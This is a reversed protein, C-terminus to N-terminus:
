QAETEDENDEEEESSKKKKKKKLKEDSKRGESKEELKKGGLKQKSLSAVANKKLNGVTGERVNLWDVLDTWALNRDDDGWLEETTMCDPQDELWDVMETYNTARKLPKAWHTYYQTKSLFINVLDVYSPVWPTAERDLGAQAIHRMWADSYKLKEMIDLVRSLEKYKAYVARIFLMTPPGVYPLTTDIELFLLLTEIQLMSLYTPGANPFASLTKVRLAHSSSSGSASRSFESM